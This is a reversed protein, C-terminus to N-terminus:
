VAGGARERRARAARTHLAARQVWAHVEQHATLAGLHSCPQVAVWTFCHSVPVRIRAGGAHLAALVRRRNDRDSSQAATLIAIITVTVLVISAVLTTGFSVRVVYDAASRAGALVPELRLLWSRGRIVAKFNPPLVWLVDGADSM